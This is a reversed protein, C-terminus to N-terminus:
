HQRSLAQFPPTIVCCHWQLRGGTVGDSAADRCNSSTLRENFQIILSDPVTHEAMFKLLLAGLDLACISGIISNLVCMRRPFVSKFSKFAAAHCEDTEVKVASAFSEDSSPHKTLYVYFYPTFLNILAIVFLQRTQGASHLLVSVTGFTPQCWSTISTIVCSTHTRGIVIFKDCM